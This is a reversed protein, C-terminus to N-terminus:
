GPPTNIHQGIIAVSDDGLFPPRGTVMEYLMAGLSYLDSRPTVEGGMAQKRRCTPCPEWDDHRRYDPPLPRPRRGPRLRRDQCYRGLDAVRQGSKLDRHVIGRATPSTWAGAPKLPSALQRSWLVLHHGEADEILGEVDGGGMLETVM